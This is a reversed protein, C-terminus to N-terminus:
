GHPLLNKQERKWSNFKYNRMLNIEAWHLDKNGKGLSNVFREVRSKELRRLESRFRDLEERRQAWENEVAQFQTDIKTQDMEKDMHRLNTGIAKNLLGVHRDTSEIHSKLVAERSESLAKM